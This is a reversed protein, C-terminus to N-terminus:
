IIRIWTFDEVKKTKVKPSPWSAATDEPRFQMPCVISLSVYLSTLLVNAVAAICHLLKQYSKKESFIAHLM